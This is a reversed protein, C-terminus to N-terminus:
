HRETRGTEIRKLIVVGGGLLLGFPLRAKQTTQANVREAEAPAVTDLSKSHEACIPVGQAVIASVSPRVAIEPEAPTPCRALPLAPPPSYSHEEGTM